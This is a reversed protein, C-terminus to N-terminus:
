QPRTAHCSRVRRRGVAAALLLATLGAVMGGGVPVATVEQPVVNPLHPNPGVRGVAPCEDTGRVRVIDGDGANISGESQWVQTMEFSGGQVMLVGSRTQHVNRVGVLSGGAPIILTGTLLLDTCGLDIRGSGINLQAGGGINLDAQAQMCLVVGSAMLLSKGLRSCAARSLGHPLFSCIPLYRM